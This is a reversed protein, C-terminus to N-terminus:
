VQPQSWNIGTADAGADVAALLTEQSLHAYRQTTKLQSHGLIKAVEYISRGSNVLNSAHTHRIDHCRVDPLGAAKRAIDWSRQISAYPKLTHPNPVVFPCNDWRPLQALIELAAKSLPVHRSRGSKALPIKWTRRDLDFDTWRSDLLERKRCGLLLLLAVIYKLQPNVSKQLESYLRQTEEQTLFRERANNAEYLKVGIAPNSKVGPIGWRMALNMLYKILILAKNATAMAFGNAKMGHHFEIIDQHTITDLHCNGFRPLLHCRLYSVDTLYSRKEAKAFPLYRDNYFEALTPVMRKIRKEASPDEGLVVRSRIIQAANRAKDFSISKADGIKHQIQKKHPDKYRLAYTKGGSARVELIFGTIATDYYNEKAKGEPCVANRVFEASLTVVPM